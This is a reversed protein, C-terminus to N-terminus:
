MYLHREWNYEDDSMNNYEDDSMYYDTGYSDSDESEEDFNIRKYLLSNYYDLEDEDKKIDEEELYQFIPLYKDDYGEQKIKNKKKNRRNRFIRPKKKIYYNREYKEDYYEESYQRRNKLKPEDVSLHVAPLKVDPTDDVMPVLSGHVLKALYTDGPCLYVLEGKANFGKDPKGWSASLTTYKKM